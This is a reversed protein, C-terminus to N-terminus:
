IDFLVETMMEAYRYMPSSSDVNVSAHDFWDNYHYTVRIIEGSSETYVEIWDGPGGTSLQIKIVTIRDVSLPFGDYLFDIPDGYDEHELDNDACNFIDNLLEERSALQDLIKDSCTQKKSM